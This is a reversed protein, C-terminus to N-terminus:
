YRTVTATATDVVMGNITFSATFGFETSYQYNLPAAPITVPFFIHYWQGYYTTVPESWLTLPVPCVYKGTFPNIYCPPRPFVVSETESLQGSASGPPPAAVYLYLEVTGGSAPLTTSSPYVYLMKCATYTYNGPPMATGALVTSLQVLIPLGDCPLNVTYSTSATSYSNTVTSGSPSIYSVKLQYGTAGPAANWSFAQSVGLISGSPPNLMAACQTPGKYTYQQAPLWYGDMKTILQVYVPRGDCPVNPVTDTTTTLNSGIDDFYDTGGVSSGATLRYQDVNAVSTWTFKTAPSTLVSGPAPSVMTAVSTLVLERIDNNYQEGIYVNGGSGVAISFPGSFTSSTAHNPDDYKGVIGNGAITTITHDSNRVLRIVDNGWDAIYVNGDPDVAVGKPQTLQSQTAPGGDGSYGGPSGPTGAVVSLTGTAGTSPVFKWVVNCGGDAIYLAGAADVALGYPNGLLINNPSSSSPGCGFQSNGAVLTVVGAANAHFVENYSDVSFYAGGANDPVVGSGWYANTRYDNGTLCTITGGGIKLVPGNGGQALYLNGTGDVGLGGLDTFGAQVAGLGCVLTNSGGGAMQANAPLIKEIVPGGTQTAVDFPYSVTAYVNGSNDAAVGLGDITFVLPNSTAITKSVYQAEAARTGFCLLVLGCLAVYLLWGVSGTRPNKPECNIFTPNM